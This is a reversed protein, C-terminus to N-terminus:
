LKEARSYVDLSADKVIYLNSAKYSISTEFMKRLIRGAERNLAQKRFTEVITYTSNGYYAIDESYDLNYLELM